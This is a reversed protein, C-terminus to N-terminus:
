QQEKDKKFPGILVDKITKGVELTSEIFIKTVETTGKIASKLFDTPLVLLSQSDIKKSKIGESIKNEFAIRINEFNFKFKDMQTHITFNLSVKDEDITRLIELINKAIQYAKDEPEEQPKPKFVIESLELKCNAILDNNLGMIDSKFNLCAKQIRAKEIDIWRRYYPWFYVGDINNIELHAQIDKKYFNVWGVFEIEGGSIDTAWPIKGKLSFNTIISVPFLVLNEISLFLDKLILKFGKPDVNYDVFNIDLNKFEIRKFIAELPPRKLNFTIETEVNSEKKEEISPSGRSFNIEARELRIENFAPRGSLFGLLSPSLYLYKINALDKIELDLIELNFPFKLNVRKLEVER